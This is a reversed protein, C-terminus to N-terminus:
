TFVAIVALANVFRCWVSPWSRSYRLGLGLRSVSAAIVYLIGFVPNRLTLLPLVMAIDYLITPLLGIFSPKSTVDAIPSWDLHGEGDQVVCAGYKTGIRMLQVPLFVLLVAAITLYIRGDLFGANLFGVIANILLPQCYLLVPIFASLMKRSENCEEPLLWLVGEVAQMLVVVMLILAIARDVGRGRIWLYAAVITVFFFTGFSTTADYCM